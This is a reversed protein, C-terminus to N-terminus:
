RDNSLKVGRRKVAKVLVKINQDSKMMKSQVEQIFDETQRTLDIVSGQVPDIASPSLNLGIYYDLRFLTGPNLDNTRYYDIPDDVFVGRTLNLFEEQTRYAYVSTSCETWAHAFTIMENTDLLQLMKPICAALKGKWKEQQKTSECFLIINLYHKYTRDFPFPKFLKSVLQPPQEADNAAAVITFARQLERQLVKKSYQTAYPNGSKYPYCPTLIPMLNNQFEPLQEFEIRQGDHDHLQDLLVPKPWEWHSWHNFFDLLLQSVTHENRHSSLYTKCLLLTWTGGNLYGMPKGYIGRNIAWYKICRLASSLVDRDQRRVLKAVYLNVRPGDLSRMDVDDINDLIADDLLNPLPDLTTAHLRAFSIDCPIDELIFKIIPVPARHVVELVQISENKLMQPFQQFFPHHDVYHPALCVLDM